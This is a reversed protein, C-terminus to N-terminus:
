IMVHHPHPFKVYSIEGCYAVGYLSGVIIPLRSKQKAIILFVHQCNSFNLINADSFKLVGGVIKVWLICFYVFNILQYVWGGGTEM